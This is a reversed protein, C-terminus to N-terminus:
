GLGWEDWLEPILDKLSGIVVVCDEDVNQMVKIMQDKPIAVCGGTYPM